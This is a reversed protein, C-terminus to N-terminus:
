CPVMFAPIGQVSGLGACAALLQRGMMSCQMSATLALPSLPSFVPLWHGSAAGLQGLAWQIAPPGM